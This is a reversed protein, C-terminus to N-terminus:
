ELQQQQRMIETQRGMGVKNEVIRETKAELNLFEIRDTKKSEIETVNEEKLYM